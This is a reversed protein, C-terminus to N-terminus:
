VGLGQTRDLMQELVTFATAVAEAQKTSRQLTEYLPPPVVSPLVTTVGALM